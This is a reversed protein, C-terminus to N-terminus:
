LTKRRGMRIPWRAIEGRDRTSLVTRTFSNISVYRAFFRELVAGLGFANGLDGEFRDDDLEVHIELGRAFTVPGAPREGEETPRFREVIAHSEVSRIGDVMNRAQKDILDGYMSLLERLAAAGQRDDSDTLSVHNLTLQNVLRMRTDGAAPALRPPTPKQLLRIEKIPAGGELRLERGGAEWLTTPLHRNTALTRLELTRLWDPWPARRESRDVLSVFVEDGLYSPGTTGSDPARTPNRRRRHVVFRRATPTSDGGLRHYPQFEIRQTRRAGLGTAGLVDYVEYDHVRSRDVIVHFEDSKQDRPADTTKEVLNVIPTCFLKLNQAGINELEPARQDFLVFVDLQKGKVHRRVAGGLHRIEVFRARQPFALFEQLLRYGQFDRAGHPLLAHEDDLGLQRVAPTPLEATWATPADAPRACVATTHAVFQELLRDPISEDGVLHLCLADLPLADFTAGAVTRLRIRLGSQANGRAGLGAAALDRAYPLYAAEAIEIPWLTVPHATRYECTSHQGKALPTRLREHRPITLGEILSGESHDPVLEAIAMSPTPAVWAPHLCRLLHETFRPLARDIQLQVRAALFAFGELLREVYPDACDFQQLDLRRAVHPYRGAFDWAVERIHRLEVRYKELLASFEFDSDM